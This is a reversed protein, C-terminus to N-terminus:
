HTRYSSWRLGPIGSFDKDATVLRFGHRIATAAMFADPTNLSKGARARLYRLQGARRSDQYDIVPAKHMRALAQRRVESEGMALFEAHCVPNIHVRAKQTLRMAPGHRESKLERELRILWNTDALLDM